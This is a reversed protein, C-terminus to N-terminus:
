WISDNEPSTSNYCGDNNEFRTCEANWKLRISGLKGNRHKSVIVDAMGATQVGDDYADIGYKSLQNVFIIVDADREITGSGGLDANNPSKSVRKEIERNLQCCAIIPIDYERAMEKIANSVKEVEEDRTRSKEKIIQLYDIILMKVGHLQVMMRAKAKLRTLTMGQEDDIVIPLESLVSYHDILSIKQQQSLMNLKIYRAPIGSEASVLREMLSNASMEISFIGIPEKTAQAANRAINLALATKGHSPRAGLVCMEGKQFGLTIDDLSVFGSPIGTISIPATANTIATFSDASLNRMTHFSRINFRAQLNQIEGLVTEAAELPSATEDYGGLHLKMGIKTQQRKVSYDVVTKAYDSAHAASIASTYILSVHKLGGAKELADKTRLFQVFVILDFSINEDLLLLLHEYIVKHRADYFDDPLIILVVQATAIKSLMMSSLVAIEADISHPPVFSTQTM